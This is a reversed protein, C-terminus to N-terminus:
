LNNMRDIEAAILRGSSEDDSQIANYCDNCYDDGNDNTYKIDRDNLGLGCGNCSAYFEIIKKKKM